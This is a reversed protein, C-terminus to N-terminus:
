FEIFRASIGPMDRMGKFPQTVRISKQLMYKKPVCKVIREKICPTRFSFTVFFLESQQPISKLVGGKVIM